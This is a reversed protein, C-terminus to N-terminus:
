CNSRDTGAPSIAACSWASPRPSCGCRARAKLPKLLRAPAPNPAAGARAGPPPGGAGRPGDGCRRRPAGRLRELFM